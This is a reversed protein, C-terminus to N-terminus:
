VGRIMVRFGGREKIITMAATVIGAVALIDLTPRHGVAVPPGKGGPISFKHAVGFVGLATFVVDM